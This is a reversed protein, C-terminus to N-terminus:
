SSSSPSPVPQSFPSLSAAFSSSARISARRPNFPSSPNKARKRKNRARRARAVGCSSLAIEKPRRQESKFPLRSPYSPSFPPLLFPHSLFIFAFTEKSPLSNKASLVDSVRRERRFLLLFFCREREREREREGRTSGARTERERGRNDHRCRELERAHAQCSAAPQHSLLFLKRKRRILARQRSQRARRSKPEERTRKRERHREGESEEQKLRDRTHRVEIESTCLSSSLFFSLGARSGNKKKKGRKSRDM